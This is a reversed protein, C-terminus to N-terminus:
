YHKMGGEGGGSESTESVMNGEHPDAHVLGTCVLGATVAEVSMTSFKLAEEPSLDELHRGYVWETLIMKATVTGVM